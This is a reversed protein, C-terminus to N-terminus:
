CVNCDVEEEGLVSKKIATALPIAYDDSCLSLSAGGTARSLLLMETARNGEAFRHKDRLQRQCSNSMSTLTHVSFKKDEGFEQRISDVVEDATARNYGYQKNEKNDTVIVIALHATDRIFRTGNKTSREPSVIYESLALLPTERFGGCEPPFACRRQGRNRTLTDIFIDEKFLTRKTIYKREVVIAGDFEM